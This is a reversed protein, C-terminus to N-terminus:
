LLESIKELVSKQSLKNFKTTFPWNNYESCFFFRKREDENLVHAAHEYNEAEKEFSKIRDEPRADPNTGYYHLKGGIGNPNMDVGLIFVYDYNMWLAIQMSAYVSSRGIHIGDILNRSFGKTRLSRFQMSTEKQKKIATSNFIIGNYSDWLESHRRMQSADFFAWYKTPWVRPDPHNISLIDINLRKIHKTDVENLSPGNGLICLIKGMGTNKIKSINSISQPTIDTVIYSVPREKHIKQPKIQNRIIPKSKTVPQPTAAPKSIVKHIEIKKVIPVSKVISNSPKQPLIPRPTSVIKKVM